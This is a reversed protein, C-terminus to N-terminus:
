RAKSAVSSVSSGGDPTAVKTAVGTKADPSSRGSPPLGAHMEDVSKLGYALGLPADLYPEGRLHLITDACEFGTSYALSEVCDEQGLCTFGVAGTSPQLLGVM